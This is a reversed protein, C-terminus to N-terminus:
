KVSTVRETKKVENLNSPDIPSLCSTLNSEANIAVQDSYQKRLLTHKLVVSALSKTVIGELEFEVKDISNDGM